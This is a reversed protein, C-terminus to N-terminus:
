AQIYFEYCEDCLLKIKNKNEWYSYGDTIKFRCVSCHEHDWMGEILEFEQKDYEGGYHAKWMRHGNVPKKSVLAPYPHFIAKSFEKDFIDEVEDRYYKDNRDISPNGSRMPNFPM